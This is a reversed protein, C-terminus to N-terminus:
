LLESVNTKQFCEIASNPSANLITVGMRNADKAIEPFGLLHRHFPLGAPVIKNNRRNRRKKQPFKYLSHWHQRDDEGLRMDFGLLIIRKVGTHVAISIAAAGSNGNWSVRDPHKSIGKARERDRKLYKIREGDYQHGSMKPNCAVKLGPFEALQLRNELFFRRDGFVVMDIWDGILYAANVGIVHKDHILSLYSSLASPPLEKRYVAKTIDDPISFQKSISPGGGIIWCEGDEWMKPVSWIM